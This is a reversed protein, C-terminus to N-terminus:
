ASDERDLRRGGEANVSFSDWLGGRARMFTGHGRRGNHRLSKGAADFIVGAAPEYGDRGNNSFRDLIGEQQAAAPAASVFLTVILIASMLISPKLVEKSRM